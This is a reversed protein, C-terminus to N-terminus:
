VVNKLLHRLQERARSIRSKVTGTSTHLVEAIEEYSLEEIERLVIAAKLKEPLKQLALQISNPIEGSEYLQEPLPEASPLDESLRETRFAERRSKKRYDLCTTVAIRYIWTYLSSDPRFDKLAKYAKLFVDQAADQANTPDQLMYRCLNYVRDQYKRVLAEFASPDGKKSREILDREDTSTMPKASTYSTRVRWRRDGAFFM